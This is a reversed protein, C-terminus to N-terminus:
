PRAPGVATTSSNFWDYPTIDVTTCDITLAGPCLSHLSMTLYIGGIFCSPTRPVLTYLHWTKFFGKVQLKISRACPFVVPVAEVKAKTFKEPAKRGIAEM